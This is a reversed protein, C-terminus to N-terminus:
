NGTKKIRSGKSVGGSKSPYIGQNKEAINTAM